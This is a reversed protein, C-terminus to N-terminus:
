IELYKDLKLHESLAEVTGTGIRVNVTPHYKERYDPIQCYLATFRDKYLRVRYRM